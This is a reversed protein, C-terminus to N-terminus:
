RVAARWTPTCTLRRSLATPSSISPGALSTFILVCMPLSNLIIQLITTEPKATSATPNKRTIGSRLLAAAAM